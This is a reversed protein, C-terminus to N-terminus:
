GDCLGIKDQSQVKHRPYSEKSGRGLVTRVIPDRLEKLILLAQQFMELAKQDEGLNYYTTGLNLLAAAERRRDQGERANELSETYFDIAKTSDGRFLREAESQVRVAELAAQVKKRNEEAQRLQEQVQTIQRLTKRFKDETIGIVRESDKVRQEADRVQQDKQAAKQKIKELNRLSVSSNQRAEILEKKQAQLQQEREGLAQEADQVQQRVSQERATLMQIQKSQNKSQQDQELYQKNVEQYKQNVKEYNQNAFNFRQNAQGALIGAATAGIFSLLLVIGGTRIRLAAKRQAESLIRNAEKVERNELKQSTSLFQYDKDSLRKGNAWAQADQLTQGRLLRSEDQLNSALWATIAEAYPRFDALKQNIWDQNFVSAYIPNYVKLNRHQEIVLGSLRLNMQEPSGDAAIEGRHLIQQYIGLLRSTWQENSLLRDRITRLHEPEDQSEWNDIIRSRVLQEIQTAEEGEPISDSSSLVLQCLKQTLFPQGGTWSLIAQLVAEPNAAKNTLGQALSRAEEFQFGNLQIARGINFPTRSKDQM